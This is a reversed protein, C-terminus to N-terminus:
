LCRLSLTRRFSESLAAFTLRATSLRSASFTELNFQWRQGADVLNVEM